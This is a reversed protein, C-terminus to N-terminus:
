LLTTQEPPPPDPPPPDPSDPDPPPPDPRVIRWNGHGGAITCGRYTVDHHHDPCLRVIGQLTTTQNKSFDEIWHHRELPEKIHCGVIVCTQDREEIAALLAKTVRRSNTCVARVDQGDTIVLDTIANTLSERVKKVPLPLDVGPVECTEGPEAHGRLLAVLDCRVRVHTAAGSGSDGSGASRALEVLADALYAGQSEYKGSKRAEEFAAKRFPELATKLFAGDDPCLRGDIRCSGDSDSWIRLYRSKKIREYRAQEEEASSRESRIETVYKRFDHADLKEAAKTIEEEREPAADAARAAERARGTSIRGSNFSEQVAPHEELARGTELESSAQTVSDGTLDALWSGANRHGHKEHVKGKAARRAFRIKGANGLRAIEALVETILAADDPLYLDADCSGLEEKLEDRLRLLTTSV